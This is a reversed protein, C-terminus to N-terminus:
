VAVAVWVELPHLLVASTRTSSLQGAQVHVLGLGGTTVKVGVIPLQPCTLM